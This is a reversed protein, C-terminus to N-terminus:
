YWKGFISLLFKLIPHTPASSFTAIVKNLSHQNMGPPATFKNAGDSSVYADKMVLPKQLAPPSLQAINDKTMKPTSAEAELFQLIGEGEKAACLLQARLLTHIASQIQVQCDILVCVMGTNVGHSSRSLSSLVEQLHGLM